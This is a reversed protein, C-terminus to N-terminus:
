FGKLVNMHIGDLIDEREEKLDEIKEVIRLKAAEIIQRATKKSLYPIKEQLDMPQAKAICQMTKFGANYLQRARGIKVLPLDMLAELELPCCYSLRKSFVNLLDKFAWFEDLEQCFRIVSFAFSSVATLLNQIIGRNIEYKEAIDYVAHQCWLDYLILTIYFRHIVRPEVNKPMLGDRIKGINVENIGLLRATKMQTESLGTVVDYYITGTPKIQSILNYPTVLYLLHLYDILILHEQAKKLDQYLTYACQMDICGKMAARGLSCLELETENTLKLIRKRKTEIITDNPSITQSPFVVSVNPKFIDFNTEKEKIKMVSTKLFETLADDVIQKVNVNLRKQQINLLTKEAIKHLECRTTAIHLLIASLILNNIGRDRDIHITSLSDDMKSKLLETVRELENNKCILISEGVDGMGARGARGTMQKYRSLNLFQNGVYPSRLIVRRAPLNVGTALTSTCCIVSLTEARFADELLRREESTLGSHHYAVGLKITKHLIPCLGEESELANLLKQKEDRKYDELSKFLLKSLLLAVNECNKRSSCFILCSNKPIVDMVLGGIRDPDIMAADNSYRYNIKKVDTLVDKTKLDLLWINEECKVYEKIEVPRFNATYLDANLFTAIEELNGITASMGVIHVNSSIYLVKTLLVELTAGRGGSEGLLHLEDIVIIGIENFRNEEILSNILGLAKEITCMYISNKKRRKKPPFTGRSAAYEEVLFDLELAFPTMAQVKEQVIAVFPLIFIANRKNCILEQLMLIEAVLTKGGSTPLAYILNKRNKVADLNLCDDQWQYLTSIGRIRLFLEKAKNPLGYFTDNNISSKHHINTNQKIIKDNLHCIKHPIANSYDISNRKLSKVNQQENNPTHVSGIIETPLTEELCNEFNQTVQKFCELVNDKVDYSDLQTFANLFTNDQWHTDTENQSFTSTNQKVIETQLDKEKEEEENVVYQIKIDNENREFIDCSSWEHAFSNLTKEHINPSTACMKSEDHDEIDILMTDDM